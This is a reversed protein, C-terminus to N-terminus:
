VHQGGSCGSLVAVRDDGVLSQFGEIRAAHVRTVDNSNSYMGTVRIAAQFDSAEGALTSRPDNVATDMCREVGFLSVFEAAGM